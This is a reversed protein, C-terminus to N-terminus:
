DPDDDEAFLRLMLVILAILMIVIQLMKMMQQCAEARDREEMAERLKGVEAENMRRELEDVMERLSAYVAPDHFAALIRMRMAELALDVFGVENLDIRGRRDIAYAMMRTLLNQGERTLRYTSLVSEPDAVLDRRFGPDDAARAIVEFVVAEAM